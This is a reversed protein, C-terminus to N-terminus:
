IIIEPEEKQNEAAYIAGRLEPYVLFAATGLIVYYEESDYDPFIMEIKVPYIASNKVAGYLNSTLNNTMILMPIYEEKFYNTIESKLASDSVLELGSLALPRNCLKEEFSQKDLGYPSKLRYSLRMKESRFDRVQLYFDGKLDSGTAEKFQQRSSYLDYKYNRIVHLLDYSTVEDSALIDQPDYVVARPGNFSDRFNFLSKKVAYEQRIFDMVSKQFGSNEAYEEIVDDPYTRNDFWYSFDQCDQLSLEEEGECVREHHKFKSMIALLKRFSKTGSFIEQLLNFLEEIYDKIEDPMACYMEYLPYFSELLAYSNIYQVFEKKQPPTNLKVLLKAFEKRGYEKNKELEDALVSYSNDDVLILLKSPQNQIEKGLVRGARGIRQLLEDVSKAEVVAFDINQRNKNEKDFNYGIDVTPTALILQKKNAEQRARRSQPGTIREKDPWEIQAFARNIRSLSNGIIVGELGQHLYDTIKDEVLDIEEDLDGAVIEAKAKTLTQLKKEQDGELDIIEMKLDLEELYNIVYQAPTASLLCIRRDEAFYGFGKSLAFFFLFNAFQKSNYYHFEDIVIYSFLAAFDQCLNRRDIRNYQFYLAYYFIDPNTVFVFPYSRDTFELDLEKAFELPNSLLRHLKDGNRRAQSTLQELLGADVNIVNFKLDNETIFGKIDRAHQHILENTPAIFLVNGGIEQLDFLYLLSALTKGTGTNHLNMVIQNDQLARYTQYQHKLPTYELNFPNEKSVPEYDESLSIEIM